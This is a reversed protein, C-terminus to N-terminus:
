DTAACVPLMNNFEPKQQPSINKVLHEISRSIIGASEKTYGGSLVMAIPIKRSLAQAFVMADRKEIGNESIDMDCLPDSSLIDTGANYIILDPKTVDIAQALDSRIIKLYEEDKIGANVPHHFDIYKKVHERRPTAKKSYIDFITVRKDPGLIAEHGNGQHADLDVVMIKKDPNQELIKHAALPIDTYICFSDNNNAAEAHHYGGSLNISWGHELALATAKVTGGTALRMPKLVRKRALFNLFPSLIKYHSLKCIQSIGSISGVKYAPSDHLSKLYDQSHVTELEEDTVEEPKHFQNKHMGVANILYQHVKGYKKSDFPHLNDIWNDLFSLGTSFGINYDKHYVIPLKQVSPEKPSFIRTYGLKMPILSLLMLLFPIKFM